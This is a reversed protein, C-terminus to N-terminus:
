IPVARFIVDSGGDSSCGFLLLLFAICLIMGNMPIGKFGISVRKMAFRWCFHKVAFLKAVLM